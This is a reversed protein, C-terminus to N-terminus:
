IITGDKHRTFEVVSGYENLHYDLLHRNILKGLRVISSTTVNHRWYVNGNYHFCVSPNGAFQHSNVISVYKTFM